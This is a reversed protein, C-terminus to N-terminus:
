SVVASRWPSVLPLPEGKFERGYWSGADVNLLEHWALEGAVGWGSTRELNDDHLLPNGFTEVFRRRVRDM